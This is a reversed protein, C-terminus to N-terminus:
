QATADPAPENSEVEEDAGGRMFSLRILEALNAKPKLAPMDSDAKWRPAGPAQLAQELLAIAQGFTLAFRDKPETKRGQVVFEFQPSEVARLECRSRLFYDRERQATIAVLGLAALVTRAAIHREPSHSEDNPRPAAMPPIVSSETSREPSQSENNPFRLRRLASLSLVTTQLAYKM